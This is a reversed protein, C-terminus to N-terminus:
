TRPAENTSRWVQATALCGPARSSAGCRGPSPGAPPSILEQRIEAFEGLWLDARGGRPAETAAAVADGVRGGAPATELVSRVVSDQTSVHCTVVLVVGSGDLQPGFESELRAELKEVGASLSPPWRLTMVDMAWRERRVALEADVTLGDSREHNRDPRDIVEAAVGSNVLDALILDVVVQDERAHAFSTPV